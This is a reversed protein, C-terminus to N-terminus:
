RHVGVDGVRTVCGRRLPDFRETSTQMLLSVRPIYPVLLVFCGRTSPNWRDGYVGRGVRFFTRERTCKDPTIDRDNNGGYYPYKRAHLTLHTSTWTRARANGTNRVAHMPYILNERPIHPKKQVGTTIFLCSVSFSEKFREKKGNHGIQCSYGCSKWFGHCQQHWNNGIFLRISIKPIKM